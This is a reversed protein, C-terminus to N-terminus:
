EELKGLLGMADLVSRAAGAGVWREAGLGAARAGDVNEQRDDWFLCREPRTELSETLATWIAPEPKVTGLDGSFLLHRFLPAWPQREVARGFSSPANSLLAMAVGERHLEQLLAVAAPDVDLWGQNDLETLARATAEDIAIGAQAAVAQWYTLESQGDDYAARRSWYAPEFRQPDAGIHAAMAPIAATRRCIVEGCDFVVWDVDSTRTRLAAEDAMLASRYAISSAPEKPAPCM